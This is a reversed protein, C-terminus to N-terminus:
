WPLLLKRELSTSTKRLREPENPTKRLVDVENKVPPKEAVPQALRPLLAAVRLLIKEVLRRVGAARCEELVHKHRASHSQVHIAVAKWKPALDFMCLATM